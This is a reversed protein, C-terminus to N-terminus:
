AISAIKPSSTLSIENAIMPHIKLQKISIITITVVYAIRRKEVPPGWQVDYTLHKTNPITVKVGNANSAVKEVVLIRAKVKSTDTSNVLKAM